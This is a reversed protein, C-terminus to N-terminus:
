CSMADACEAIKDKLQLLSTPDDVADCSMEDINRLCRTAAACTPPTIPPFRTYSDCLQKTMASATGCTAIRSCAHKVISYLM